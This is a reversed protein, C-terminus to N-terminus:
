WISTLYALLSSASRVAEESGTHDPDASYLLAKKAPLQHEFKLVNVTLHKNPALFPSIQLHVTKDILPYSYEFNENPSTYRRIYPRFDLKVAVRSRLRLIHNGFTYGVIYRGM